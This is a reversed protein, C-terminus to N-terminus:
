AEKVIKKSLFEKKEGESLESLDMTGGSFVNELIRKEPLSIKVGGLRYDEFAEATIPVWSKVYLYIKEALVRTEYQASADMRLELFNLLNHLDIKWFATTYNSLPLVMRAQEKSVGMSLMREYAEVCKKVADRYIGDVDACELSSMRCGDEVRWSEPVFFVDPAFSYRQSHENMSATRHRSVHRWVFIPARIKFIAECMEFPSTHRHRMLFRILRRDSEFGKSTSGTSVRASRCISADDGMTDVLEVECESLYIM